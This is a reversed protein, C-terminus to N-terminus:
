LHYGISQQAQYSATEIQRGEVQYAKSNAFAYRYSAPLHQTYHPDYHQHLAPLFIQDLWRAMQEKTLSIFKENTIGMHPFLVHVTIDHAGVVQGLLFHPVDRLMASSSRVLQELDDNTYFTRTEIHNDATINQRM